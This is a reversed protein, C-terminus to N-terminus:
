GNENNRILESDNINKVDKEEKVKDKPYRDVHESFKGNKYRVYKLISNKHEIVFGEVM